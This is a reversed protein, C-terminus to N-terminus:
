KRDGPSALELNKDKSQILEVTLRERDKLVAEGWNRISIERPGQDEKIGGEKSNGPVLEEKEVLCNITEIKFVVFFSFSL